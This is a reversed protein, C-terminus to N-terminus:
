ASTASPHAGLPATTRDFLVVSRGRRAAEWAFALGVIGAGVVAVDARPKPRWSGVGTSHRPRGRARDLERSRDPLPVVVKLPHRHPDKLRERMLRVAQEAMAECPFSYTTIGITFLNGIPLDECGTVAVDDPVKAGRALLEIILGM